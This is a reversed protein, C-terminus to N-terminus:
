VVVLSVTIGWRSAPKPKFQPPSAYRCTFITSDAQFTFAFALLRDTGYHSVILAKDTDDLDHVVKIQDRVQTFYSRFRPKGSVARDVRTGDSSKIESGFAQTVTPYDAM